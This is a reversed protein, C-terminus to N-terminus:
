ITFQVAPIIGRWRGQLLPWTDCRVSWSTPVMFDNACMDHDTRGIGLLICLIHELIITQLLISCYRLGRKVYHVWDEGKAFLDVASLTVHQHSRGVLQERKTLEACQVIRNRRWCVNMQAEIVLPIPDKFFFRCYTPLHRLSTDGACASTEPVILAYCRLFFSSSCWIRQFFRNVNKSDKCAQKSIEITVVEILWVLLRM